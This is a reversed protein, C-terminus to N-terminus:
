LGGGRGVAGNDCVGLGRGGERRSEDERCRGARMEEGETGKGGEPVHKEVCGWAFNWARIKLCLTTPVRCFIVRCRVPILRLQHFKTSQESMATVYGDVEDEWPVGRSSPSSELLHDYQIM